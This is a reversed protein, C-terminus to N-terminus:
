NGVPVVGSEILAVFERLIMFEVTYNDRAEAFIRSLLDRALPDQAGVCQVHCLLVFVGGVEWVRRLDERALALHKDVKQPTLEWAYESIIPLEVVQATPLRRLLHDPPILNEYIMDFFSSQTSHGGQM